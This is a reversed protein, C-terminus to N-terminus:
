NSTVQAACRQIAEFLKAFEVPKTIYAYYGIDSFKSLYVKNGFATVVIFKTDPKIDKIRSAMEIGDMVPMKIDTIVIDPMHEKFIEVGTKGNDAFYLIAEPYKRSIIAGLLDRTPKDDEAVMM